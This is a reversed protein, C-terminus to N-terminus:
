PADEIGFVQEGVAILLVHVPVGQESLGEEHRFVPHDVVQQPIELAHLDVEGDDHVLVAGAADDGELVDDLLNDAVDGIFEIVLVDQVGADVLM